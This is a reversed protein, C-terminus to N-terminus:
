IAAPSPTAAAGSATAARRSCSTTGARWRTASRRRRSGAPGARRPGVRGGDAEPAAALTRPFATLNVPPMAAVCATSGTALTSLFRRVIHSACHQFDYLASVHATNPVEVLTANPFATAVHQADATPTSQDFEGNLVLVPM